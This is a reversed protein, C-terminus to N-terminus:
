FLVGESLNVISKLVTMDVNVWTNVLFYFPYFNQEASKMIDNMKCSSLFFASFHCLKFNPM